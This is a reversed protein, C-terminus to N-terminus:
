PQNLQAQLRALEKKAIQKGWYFALIVLFFMLVGFFIIASLPDMLECPESNFGASMRATNAELCILYANMNADYMGGPMFAMIMSFVFGMGLALFFVVIWPINISKQINAIKQRIAAESDTVTSAVSTPAAVVQPTLKAPPPAVTPAASPTARLQALATQAAAHFPDLAVAKELFSQQQEPNIAVQAALYYTEADPEHQLAERLLERAQPVNFTDIATKIQANFPNM